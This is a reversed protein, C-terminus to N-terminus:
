AQDALESTNPVPVVDGTLLSHESVITYMLLEDQITILKKVEEMMETHTGAPEQTAEATAAEQKENRKSGSESSKM